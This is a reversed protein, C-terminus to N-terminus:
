LLAPMTTMLRHKLSCSTACSQLTLTLGISKATLLKTRQTPRLSAQGYYQVVVDTPALYSPYSTQFIQASLSGTDKIFTTRDYFSSVNVSVTLMKTASDISMSKYSTDTGGHTGNILSGLTAEFKQQDTKAAVLESQVSATDTELPAPSSHNTVGVLVFLMLALSGFILAARKRSAQRLLSPKVLAAILVGVSAILLIVLVTNM